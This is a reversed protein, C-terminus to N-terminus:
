RSRDLFRQKMDEHQTNAERDKMIRTQGKMEERQTFGMQIIMDRRHRFAEVAGKAIQEIRKAENLAKRAEIVREHRVVEANVQSETPKQGAAVKNERIQRYVAAETNDLLLKFQDVQLSADSLLVAYHSFMSAQTMMASTLDVDSVAIDQRLTALNVIEKVSYTAM